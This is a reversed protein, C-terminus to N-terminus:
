ANLLRKVICYKDIEHNTSKRCNKKPLNIIEIDNYLLINVTNKSEQTVLGVVENNFTVFKGDM